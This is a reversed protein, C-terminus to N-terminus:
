ALKQEQEDYNERRSLNSVSTALSSYNAHSPGLGEACVLPEGRRSLLQWVILVLTVPILPVYFSVILWTVGSTTGLLHEARVVGLISAIDLVTAVVFLWVLAISLRLRYRLAMIAIFALFMGLLDGYVIRDRGADSIPFGTQQASVISLAVHRFAHVWLLPILAAARGRTRLWPAVYWVAITTFVVFSLARALLEALTTNM